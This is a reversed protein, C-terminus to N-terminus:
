TGEVFLSVEPFKAKFAELTKKNYDAFAGIEPSTLEAETLWKIVGEESDKPDGEWSVAHYCYTYFDEGSPHERLEVRTFILVLSNITVHAEEKVERVLAQELTEEPDVKGGILGFKTKDHRRSIALIRGDKIILAGVAQRM